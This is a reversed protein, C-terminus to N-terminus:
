ADYRAIDKWHKPDNNDAIDAEIEELHDFYYALAAHLQAPSIHPLGNLIEDDTMGMKYYGAISRVPTRTGEVIPIGSLIKPNSTIHPYHIAQNM